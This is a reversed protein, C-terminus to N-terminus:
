GSLLPSAALNSVGGANQPAGSVCHSLSCLLPRSCVLAWTFPASSFGLSFSCVSAWTLGHVASQVVNDPNSDRGGLWSLDMCHLSKGVDVRVPGILGQSVVSVRHALDRPGPGHSRAEQSQGRGRLDVGIRRERARCVRAGAVIHGCGVDDPLTLRLSPQCVVNLHDGCPGGPRSRRPRRRPTPRCGAARDVLRRALHTVVKADSRTARLYAARLVQERQGRLMGSIRERVGPTSLDRQGAAEHAVVLVLMHVGGVTIARVTGPQAGM